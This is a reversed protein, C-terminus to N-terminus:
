RVEGAPRVPGKGRPDWLISLQFRVVPAGANLAPQQTVLNVELVHPNKGLARIYDLMVQNSVAMGTIGVEAADAQTKVPALSVITTGGDVQRGAAELADFLGSWSMRLIHQLKQQARAGELAAPDARRVRAAAESRAQAQMGDRQKRTTEEAQKVAQLSRDLLFACLLAFVVGLLLMLWSARTHRSANPAIDFPDRVFM